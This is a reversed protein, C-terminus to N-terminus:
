EGAPERVVVLRDARVRQKLSTGGAPWRVELRDVRAVEGLGFHVLPLISGAFSASRTVERTQRRGDTVISVRAGIGDRNSRTGELKVQLWHGPAGDNRLIHPRDNINTVAFDLDGDGELDVPLVARSSGVSELGPGARDSWDVFRGDATNRFISNPQKFTAGLDVDDVQPYV